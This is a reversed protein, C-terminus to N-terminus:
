SSVNQVVLAFCCPHFPFQSPSQCGLAWGQSCLEELLAVYGLSSWVTGGAPSYTNLRQLSHPCCKENLDNSAVIFYDM